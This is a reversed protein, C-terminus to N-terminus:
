KGSGSKKRKKKVPVSEPMPPQAAALTLGFMEKFVGQHFDKVEFDIGGMTGNVKKGTAIARFIDYTIPFDIVEIRDGVKTIGLPQDTHYATANPFTFTKDDSTITGGNNDKHADSTSFISIVMIIETPVWADDRKNSKIRFHMGLDGEIGQIGFFDQHRVWRLTCQTFSEGKTEDTSVSIEKLYKAREQRAKEAEEAAKKANRAEQEAAKKADRDAQEAAKKAEEEFKKAERTAQETAKKADKEAQTEATVAAPRTLGQGLIVVLVLATLTFGKRIVNLTFGGTIYFNLLLFLGEESFWVGRKM